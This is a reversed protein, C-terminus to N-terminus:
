PQVLEQLKEDALRALAETQEADTSGLAFHLVVAVVGGRRILVTDVEVPQVNGGIGRKFAISQDGLAPSPLAAFRWTRSSSDAPPEGTRKAADTLLIEGAGLTVEAPCSEIISNVDDMFAQAGDPLFTAVTQYVFPGHGGSDPFPGFPGHEFSAEVRALRDRQSAKVACIPPNAADEGVLWGLGFQDLPEGDNWGAPLDALVLLGPALDDVTLPAGSPTDADAVDDGGDGGCASFLALSLLLLVTLQRMM